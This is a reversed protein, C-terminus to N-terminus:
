PQTFWVNRFRIKNGHDQLLLPGPTAAEPQGGGTKDPIEVNNHIRTGNHYVTVRANETKKGSADFRAARFSIDYTQWQGAPLALNYDAAKVKYIGGCIDDAPDQGASNLIQVEYRRQIYVGSNGNAQGEKDNNDVCFEVHLRADNFTPRSVIDGSGPKVELYGNAFPWEIKSGPTKASEWNSVDGSPGLLVTANKPPDRSPDGLDQIRLNRWRVELPDKSDTSHVQLGIFGSRTLDDKLDAAPVGNLWTRISDGRAEVRVKNWENQKFAKRATENKSMDQLWERRSEDYIGCTFGRESPDIEVQYGHVVGKRYGPASNSRIQVGSNLKPDIKFDYELVFDAFDRDTCLFTNPTDGATTGVICDGDVRYTAQGGRRTWGDLSKGDFLPKWAPEAPTTQGRALPVALAFFVLLVAVSKPNKIKSKPNFKPAIRDASARPALIDTAPLRHHRKHMHLAGIQTPCSYFPLALDGLAGLRSSGTPGLPSPRRTNTKTHAPNAAKTILVNQTPMTRIQVWRSIFVTTAAIEALQVMVMVLSFGGNPVSNRTQGLESHPISLASNSDRM